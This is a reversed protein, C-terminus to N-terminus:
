RINIGTFLGSLGKIYMKKMSLRCSGGRAPKRGKSSLIIYNVKLEPSGIRCGNGKSGDPELYYWKGNVEKWGFAMSGDSELYYWKGGIEKWGVAMSGDAGLYYRKQAADQYWGTKMIGNEDFYYWKGDDTKLWSNRQKQGNRLVYHWQGEEQRWEGAFSQVPFVLSMATLVALIKVRNKSM